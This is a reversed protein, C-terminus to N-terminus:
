QEDFWASNRQYQQHFFDWVVGSIYSVRFFMTYVVLRLQHDGSKQAMLLLLRNKGPLTMQYQKVLELTEEHDTDQCKGVAVVALPFSSTFVEWFVFPEFRFIGGQFLLFMSGFWWHKPNGPTQIILLFPMFFQPKTFSSDDVLSTVFHIPRPLITLLALTSPAPFDEFDQFDHCSYFSHGVTLSRASMVQIKFCLDMDQNEKLEITTPDNHLNSFRLSLFGTVYGAVPWQLNAERKSLYM